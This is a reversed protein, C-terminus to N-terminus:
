CVTPDQPILGRAMTDRRLRTPPPSNRRSPDSTRHVATESLDTPHTLV